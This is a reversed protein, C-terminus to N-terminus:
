QASFTKFLRANPCFEDPRAQPTEGDLWSRCENTKSCNLCASRAMSLDTGRRSTALAVVDTGMRHMMESMRQAQREFPGFFAFRM